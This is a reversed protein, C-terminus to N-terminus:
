TPIADLRMADGSGISISAARQRLIINGNFQAARRATLQCHVGEAEWTALLRDALVTLAEIRRGIGDLERSIDGLDIRMVKM